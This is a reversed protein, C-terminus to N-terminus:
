PQASWLSLFAATEARLITPGLSIHHVSDPYTKAIQGFFDREAPSWGGEPGIVVNLAPVRTPRKDTREISVSWTEQSFDLSTLPLPEWTIAPIWAQESQLCSSEVISLARRRYKEPLAEKTNTYETIIFRLAKLPLQACLALAEELSSKELLPLWLTVEPAPVTFDELIEGLVLQERTLSAITRLQVRGHGDCLRLTHSPKVRRVRVLHHFVDPHDKADLAPTEWDFGPLLVPIIM